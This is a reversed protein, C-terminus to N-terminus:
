IKLSLFSSVIRLAFWSFIILNPKLYKWLRNLTLIHEIIGLCSFMLFVVRHWVFYCFYTRAWQLKQKNWHFFIHNIWCCLLITILNLLRYLFDLCLLNVPHVSVSLVKRVTGEHFFNLWFDGLWYDHGRSFIDIAFAFM